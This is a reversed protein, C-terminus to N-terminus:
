DLVMSAFSSWSTLVLDACPCSAQKAGKRILLTHMGVNRGGMVDKKCSDGVYLAQHPELSLNEFMQLFPRANPKLSGSDETSAVYDFLSPDIGLCELKVSIPFDSLAALVYGQGKAKELSELVGDFPKIHDKMYRDWRSSLCHTYKQIYEDLSGSFGMLAMERKRFGELDTKAVAEYGDISRMKQRMSNYRMSFVPHALASRLLYLNTEMKPYFTGDIDFCLARIGRESAWGM